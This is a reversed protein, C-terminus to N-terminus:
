ALAADFRTRLDSLYRIAAETSREPDLREDLWRDVTLGYMRGSEPVFQWLGAAGAPSVITPNHGSEILSLWILDTDVM